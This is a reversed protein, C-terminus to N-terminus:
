VVNSACSVPKYGIAWGGPCQILALHSLVYSISIYKKKDVILTHKEAMFGEGWELNVEQSLM